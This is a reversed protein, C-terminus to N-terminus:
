RLLRAGNEDVRCRLLEGAHALQAAAKEMSEGPGTAWLTSGLMSQGWAMDSPLSRGAAAMAPPMLGLGLSFRHSEALIAEWAKERGAALIRDVAADGLNRTQAKWAPDQIITPTAIGRGMVCFLFETGQPPEVRMAWGHPPCGPKIRTEGAGFWSGVADGLGTGSQVEATHTAELAREPELGLLSAAALAAALSGAASMGFGQGVPLDLRLEVQLGTGPSLMALAARTVPADFPKGAVFIRTEPALRVKATAGLSLSWGAGRSGKALPERPEDHVAFLGSVHAPAFATATV